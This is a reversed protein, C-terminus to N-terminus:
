PAGDTLLAFTRAVQAIADGTARTLEVLEGVTIGGELAGLTATLLILKARASGLAERAPDCVKRIPAASADREERTPLAAIPELRRTCRAELEEGGHEVVAAAYHQVAVAGDLASAGCGVLVM